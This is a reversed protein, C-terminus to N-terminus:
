SLPKAGPSGIRRWYWRVFRPLMQPGASSHKDFWAKVSADLEVIRSKEPDLEALRKLADDLLLLQSSQSETPLLAEDLSIQQAGGGRKKRLGTRAHDM